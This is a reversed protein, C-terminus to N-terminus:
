NILVISSQNVTTPHLGRNQALALDLDGDNDLDVLHGSLHYWAEPWNYRLEPPARAEDLTFTGDGNNVMFHSSVNAGGISDVWLDVDGDGDIDGSTASKLHLDAPGSYRPNPRLEHERGIADALAESPRLRGDPDSLFLQPPNGVGISQAVVYVGADFVALDARGDGNFDDAVVVPTRVDITGAVLEPAHRFGSGGQGAFVRLTAKTFRDEPLNDDRFDVGGALIDDRGDGNLDAVAHVSELVGLGPQTVVRLFSPPGACIAGEFQSITAVWARAAPTDPVCLGSGELPLWDLASLGTLSEPLPGSLMTDRFDLATLEVLNGLEPPVRGSLVNVGLLLGELNALRGLEAPIASSLRNAQLILSELNMLDGVEAPIPGTLGRNGGIELSRLQSLTGLEPPLTGTLGNGIFDRATEDWGGLRLGTVRGDEDVDVGYWDGLPAASLWNTSDTWTAGGTADYLAQLGARDTAVSGQAVADTALGVWVAVVAM